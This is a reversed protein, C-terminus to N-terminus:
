EDTVAGVGTSDTDDDDDPATDGADPSRTDAGAAVARNMAELGYRMSVDVSRDGYHFEELLPRIDHRWIRALGGPATAMPRM